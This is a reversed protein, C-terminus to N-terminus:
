EPQIGAEAIDQLGARKLISSVEEPFEFSNVITRVRLNLLFLSISHYILWCICVLGILALNIRGFGAITEVENIKFPPERSTMRTLSIIIIIIEASFLIMSSLLVYLLSRSTFGELLLFYIFLLITVLIIWGFKGSKPSSIFGADVPSVIEYTSARFLYFDYRLYDVFIAVIIFILWYALAGSQGTYKSLQLLSNLQDASYKSAYNDYIYLNPSLNTRTPETPTLSLRKFFEGYDDNPVPNQDKRKYSSRKSKHSRSRSRSHSHSPQHNVNYKSRKREKKRLDEKPHQPKVPIEFAVKKPEEVPSRHTKTIHKKHSHNKLSRPPSKNYQSKKYQSTNLKFQPKYISQLDTKITEPSKKVSQRRRRRKRITDETTKREKVEPFTEISGTAGDEDTQKLAKSSISKDSSKHM